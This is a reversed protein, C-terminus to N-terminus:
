QYAALEALSTVMHVQLTVGEEEASNVYKKLGTSAVVQCDNLLVDAGQLADLVARLLKDVDPTASTYPFTRRLPQGSAPGAFRFVAQIVVPGTCTKFGETEATRRATTAVLERWSRSHPNAELARGRRVTKSGQPQPRGQVQVTLVNTAASV